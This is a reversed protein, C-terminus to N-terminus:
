HNNIEDVLFNREMLMNWYLSALPHANKDASKTYLEAAQLDGMWAYILPIQRIDPSLPPANKNEKLMGFVDKRSRIDELAPLGHSKLVKVAEGIDSLLSEDSSPHWEKWGVREVLNFLNGTLTPGGYGILDPKKNGFQLAYKTEAERYLRTFADSIECDRVSVRLYFGSPRVLTNALILQSFNDTTKREFDGARNRAFGHKNLEKALEDLLIQRLHGIKM